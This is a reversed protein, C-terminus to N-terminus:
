DISGFLNVMVWRCVGALVTHLVGLCVKRGIRNAQAKRKEMRVRAVEAEIAELGEGTRCV